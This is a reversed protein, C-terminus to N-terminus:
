IKTKILNILETIVVLLLTFPTLILGVVIIIIDKIKMTKLGKRRISRRAIISGDIVICM